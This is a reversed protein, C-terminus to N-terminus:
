MKKNLDVKNLTCNSSNSCIYVDICGDGCLLSIFYKIVGLITHGM